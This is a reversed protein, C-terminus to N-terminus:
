PLKFEMKGRLFAAPKVHSLNLEGSKGPLAQVASNAIDFRETFLCASPFLFSVPDFCCDSPLECLGFGSLLKGPM